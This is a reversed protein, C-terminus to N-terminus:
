MGEPLDMKDGDMSYISTLAGTNDRIESIHLRGYITVPQDMLSKVGPKAMTVTLLENIQIPLGYCCRAQTKMLFFETVLGDELKVPLMFGRVAIKNNDLAKINGPIEDMMKQVGKMRVADVLQWHLRATYGGLKDFGVQFYGDRLAFPPSAVSAVANGPAVVVAPTQAPPLVAAAVANSQPAPNILGGQAIPVVVPRATSGKLVIAAVMGAVLLAAVALVVRISGSAGSGTKQQLDNHNLKM